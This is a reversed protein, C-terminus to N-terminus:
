KGFRGALWAFVEGLLHASDGWGAPVPQSWPSSARHEAQQAVRARREAEELRLRRREEARRLGGSRIWALAAELEEEDFWVGHEKCVDVVIGSSRGYNVRNMTRACHPCRRYFPGLQAVPTRSSSREGSASLTGASAEERAERELARLVPESM